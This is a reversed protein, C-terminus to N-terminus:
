PQDMYAFLPKPLKCEGLLRTRRALSFLFARTIHYFCAPSIIHRTKHKNITQKHTLKHPQLCLCAIVM